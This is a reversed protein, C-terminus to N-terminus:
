VRKPSFCHSRDRLGNGKGASEEGSGASGSGEVLTLIDDHPLRHGVDDPGGDFGGDGDSRALSHRWHGVTLEDRDGRGGGDDSSGRAGAGARDVSRRRGGLGRRARGRLRSRSRRGSGNHSRSRRGLRGWGGGTRRRRSSLAAGAQAGDGGVEADASRARGAITVPGVVVGGGARGVWAEATVGVVAEDLVDDGKGDAPHLVAVAAPADSDRVAAPGRGGRNDVLAHAALAVRDVHRSVEEAGKAAQVDTTEM